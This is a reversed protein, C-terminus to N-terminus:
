HLAHRALMLLNASVVSAWAYAKFSALGRWMCRDLGFCRKLFSIGAEVGARFRRLARYVGTSKTMELVDIGRKKSFAVDQVGLGKIDQLNAKSAFGGDFAIQRPVRGFIDDQRQVMEVALTSDAPNGDEIRCDLVLGSTGTALCLKHGYHTERRDKIIIDTHPEFISVLKDKAAVKEGRLVRRETQEIVRHTLGVYHKLMTSISMMRAYDMAGAINCTELAAVIREANIVTAHTVKLLDRYLRTRTASTKANLIGLARRKARRTHDRFPISVWERANLMNRTLVRVCDWLLSSDGPEHIHTETVTCDIRVKRGKEIGRCNAEAIVMWNIKELTEPTVKKLNRKLTSKKPTPDAIGISCFRQYSASDGLHFALKDYSFGTMQKVLLIRLVQEGSMGHRGRKANRVGRVLDAHVLQAADPLARLIRDMEELERAHVHGIPTSVLPPQLAIIERM